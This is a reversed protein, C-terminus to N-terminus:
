LYEINQVAFHVAQFATLVSLIVIYTFTAFGISGSLRFFQWRGKGFVSIYSYALYFFSALTSTGLTTLAMEPLLWYLPSFLSFIFLIHAYVFANITIHEAFNYTERFYAVYSFFAFIPVWLVFLFKLSNFLAQHYQPLLFRLFKLGRKYSVRKKIKTGLWSMNINLEKADDDGHIGYEDPRIGSKNSSKSIGETNKTKAAVKTAGHVSKTEDTTEPVISELRDLQETLTRFFGFHTELVSINVTFVLILFFTYKGASLYRQRKGSIYDKLMAGPNTSLDIVNRLFGKNSDFLATYFDRFVHFVSLRKTDAKQGCQPCFKGQFVTECNLCSHDIGQGNPKKKFPNWRPRSDFSM